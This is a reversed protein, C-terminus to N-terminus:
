VITSSLDISPFVFIWARRKGGLGTSKRYCDYLICPSWSSGVPPNRWRDLCIDSSLFFHGLIRKHVDSTSRHAKSKHFNIPFNFSFVTSPVSHGHPTAGDTASAFLAYTVYGISPALGTQLALCEWIPAHWVIGFLVIPLPIVIM